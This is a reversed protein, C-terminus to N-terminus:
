YATQALHDGWVHDQWNALHLAPQALSAMICWGGEVWYGLVEQIARLFSRNFLLSSYLVALVEEIRGILPDPHPALPVSRRGCQGVRGDLRVSVLRGMCILTCPHM